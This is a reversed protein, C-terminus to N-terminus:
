RGPAGMGMLEQAGAHLDMYAQAMNEISGYAFVAPEQNSVRLVIVCRAIAKDGHLERAETIGHHGAELNDALRRLCGPLDSFDLTGTAEVLKLVQASM